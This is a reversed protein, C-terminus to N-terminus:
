IESERPGECYDSKYCNRLGPRYLFNIEQLFILPEYIYKWTVGNDTLLILIKKVEQKIEVLPFTCIQIELGLSNLNQAYRIGSKHIAFYNGAM